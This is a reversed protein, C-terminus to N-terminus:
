LGIVVGAILAVKYMTDILDRTYQFSKMHVQPMLIIRFQDAKQNFGGPSAVYDEVIAKATSWPM